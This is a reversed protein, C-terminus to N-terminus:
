AAMRRPSTVSARALPLPISPRSEAGAPETSAVSRRKITVDLWCRGRDDEAARVSVVRWRGADEGVLDEIARSVDDLFGDDLPGLTRWPWAGRRPAVFVRRYEWGNSRECKWSTARM